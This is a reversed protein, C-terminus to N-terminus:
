WCIYRARQGHQAGMHRRDDSSRAPQLRKLFSSLCTSVCQSTGDAVVKGATWLKCTPAPPILGKGDELALGAKLVLHETYPRRPGPKPAEEIIGAPVIIMDAECLQKVSCRKLDDVCQIKICALQNGTFKRREDDWQQVLGPPVVVLSAGSKGKCTDRDKRAKQIGQLILAITIVTKGSGIADGLVGGKLPRSTTAKASLCWGVGPLIHESREEEAFLVEGREIAIMRALAKSQRTYLPLTLGSVTTEVYADSNPVKFEKTGPEGMSSLEALCYEVAAGKSKEGGRRAVANYAAVSPNM